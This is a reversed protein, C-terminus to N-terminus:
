ETSGTKLDGNVVYSFVITSAYADSSDVAVVQDSVSVQNTENEIAKCEDKSSAKKTEGNIVYTCSYVLEKEVKGEDKSEKIGGCALSTAGIVPILSMYLFRFRFMYNRRQNTYYSRDHMFSALNMIFSGMDSIAITEM